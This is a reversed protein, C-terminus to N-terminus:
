TFITLRAEAWLNIFAESGYRFTNETLPLKNVVHYRLNESLIDRKVISENLVVGLNPISDCSNCGCKCM